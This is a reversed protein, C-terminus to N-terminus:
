LTFFLNPAVESIVHADFSNRFLSSIPLPSLSLAEGNLLKNRANM